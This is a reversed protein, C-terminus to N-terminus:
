VVLISARPIVPHGIQPHSGLCLVAPVGATPDGGGGVGFANVLTRAPMVLGVDARVVLPYM